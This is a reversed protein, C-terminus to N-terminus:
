TWLDEGFSWGDRASEKIYGNLEPRNKIKMHAEDYKILGGFRQAMVGVLAM